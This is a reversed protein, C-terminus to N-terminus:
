ATILVLFLMVTLWVIVVLWCLLCLEPELEDEDNSYLDFPM